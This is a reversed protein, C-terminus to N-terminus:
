AERDESERAAERDILKVKEITDAMERKAREIKERLIQSIGIGYDCVICARLNASSREIAGGIHLALYAVEHENVDLRLEREFMNSASWAMAMLNPYKAKIQRLLPNKFGTRYKLRAIMAKLQLFM